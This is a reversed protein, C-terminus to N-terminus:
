RRPGRRALLGDREWALAHAVITDLDAYRPSWDLTRLIRRNDAVVQAPDGARRTGLTVPFDAGSLRKVAELVELVSYGRGYGCNLVQSDGGDVLHSLAQIHARALDEVHIFDRVCTGDPTAYDTGFVTVGDRRGVAAECAVKILHTAQPTAQGLRGSPEAGAVNFYRLCVYRLDSAAGLDMLMRESMMKSAGYPNIPALPADEAVPMTEPMGYVAATSSFVFRKVGAEHCAQLLQWTNRTNNGYYRLPDSLSEPVVTHAAFHLVADFAHRALTEALQATDALDARVLPAEGVAWAFGTSLNDYVVPEHGAALLQRVVHSGIYGAGGTVLVRM